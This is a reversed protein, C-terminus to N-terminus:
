FSSLPIRKWQNPGTAVYLFEGDSAIPVSNVNVKVPAASSAPAATSIPAAFLQAANQFHQVWGWQVLGSKPDVMPTQYIADPQFPIKQTSM